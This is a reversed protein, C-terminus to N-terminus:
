ATNVCTVSGILPRSTVTRGTSPSSMYRSPSGGVKKALSTASRTPAAGVAPRLGSGSAAVPGAAAWRVISIM